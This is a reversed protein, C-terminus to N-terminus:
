RARNRKSLKARRVKCTKTLCSKAHFKGKRMHGNLECNLPFSADDFLEEMMEGCLNKIANVEITDLNEEESDTELWCLGGDSFVSNERELDSEVLQQLSVLKDQKSFGCNVGLQQLCDLTSVEIVSRLSESSCMGGGFELNKKAARVEAKALTHEDRSGMLRPSSCVQGLNAEPIASAEMLREEVDMERKEGEV